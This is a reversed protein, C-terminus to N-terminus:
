CLHPSRTLIHGFFTVFDNFSPWYTNTGAAHIRETYFTAPKHAYSFWSVHTLVFARRKYIYCFLRSIILQACVLPENYLERDYIRSM